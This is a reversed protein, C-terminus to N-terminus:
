ANRMRSHMDIIPHRERYIAYARELLDNDFLPHEVKAKCSTCYAVVADIEIPEGHVTLTEREHMIVRGGFELCEPCIDLIPMM